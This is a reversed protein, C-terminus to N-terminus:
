PPWPTMALAEARDAAARERAQAASDAETDEVKVGDPRASDTEPLLAAGELPVATAVAASTDPRLPTVLM